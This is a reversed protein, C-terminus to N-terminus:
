RSGSFWRLHLYMGFLFQQHDTAAGPSREVGNCTVEQTQVSEALSANRLWRRASGRDVGINDLANHIARATRDISDKDHLLVRRANSGM